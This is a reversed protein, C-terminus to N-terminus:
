VSALLRLDGERRTLGVRDLYECLPVAYKRTTGLLDRIEAVTLGPGGERLRESIRRRMEAEVEGHLYLEDTIRVLQGEAVSVDFLDKLSAANGAAQNIFSSPEPPQFGAEHHAAIIKEKLKRQNNSLRPKFDARGLRRLDGILVKRQLLREVVAHVLSDDGVYDLHSQVRSRDHTSMLPFQEHLADLTSLLRQELETVMDRHLLLKRASGIAVEVLEGSGQLEAVIAGAQSPALGTGRVLEAITFGGFGGFWAV